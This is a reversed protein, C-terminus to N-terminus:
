SLKTQIKKLTINKQSKIRHLDIVKIAIDEHTEIHEGKYVQGFCGSDIKEYIKYPGLKRNSIDEDFEEIYSKYKLGLCRYKIERTM